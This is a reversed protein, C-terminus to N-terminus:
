GGVGTLFYAAAGLLLAWLAITVAPLAIGSNIRRVSHALVEDHASLDSQMAM